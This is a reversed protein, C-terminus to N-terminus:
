FLSIFCPPVSLPGPSQSGASNGPELRDRHLSFWVGERTIQQAHVKVPYYFFSTIKISQCVNTVIKAFTPVECQYGHGPPQRPRKLISHRVERELLVQTKLGENNKFQCSSKRLYQNTNHESQYLLIFSYSTDEREKWSM